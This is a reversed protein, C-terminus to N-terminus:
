SLAEEVKHALAELTFPKPLFTVGAKFVGHSAVVNETYGSMYLVRMETRRAQLRRALEGGGMRPMIVDTVLLHIPGEYRDSLELAEVGHSAVLVQYGQERLAQAILERIDAADEVVLVTAQRPCRVVAVSPELAAPQVAAEKGDRPLYVKFTSGQGVESYVG